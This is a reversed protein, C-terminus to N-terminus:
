TLSTLTTSTPIRILINLLYYSIFIMLNINAANHKLCISTEKFDDNFNISM